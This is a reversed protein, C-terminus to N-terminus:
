EFHSCPSPLFSGSINSSSYLSFPLGQDNYTLSTKFSVTFPLSLLLLLLYQLIYLCFYSPVTAPSSLLFECWWFIFLLHFHFLFLFFLAVFAHHSFVFVTQFFLHSLFVHLSGLYSFVNCLPFWFYVGFILYTCSSLVLSQLRLLPRSPLM